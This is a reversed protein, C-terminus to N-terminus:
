DQTADFAPPNRVRAYPSSKASNEALRHHWPRAARTVTQGLRAKATRPEPQRSRPNATAPPRCEPKRADRSSRRYSAFCRRGGYRKATPRCKLPTRSSAAAPWQRHPLPPDFARCPVPCSRNPFSQLPPARWRHPPPPSVFAGWVVERQGLRNGRFTVWSSRPRYRLHTAVQPGQTTRSRKAPLATGAARRRPRPRSRPFHGTAFSAFRTKRRTRWTGSQRTHTCPTDTRGFRPTRRNSRQVFLIARTPAPRTRRRRRYCCRRRRRSLFLFRM